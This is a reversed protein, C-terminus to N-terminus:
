IFELLCLVSSFLSYWLLSNETLAKAEWDWM